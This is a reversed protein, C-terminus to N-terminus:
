CRLSSAFACSLGRFTDPEVAATGDIGAPKCSGSISLMSILSALVLRLFPGGSSHAIPPVILPTCVSPGQAPALRTVLWLIRPMTSISRSRYKCCPRCPADLSLSTDTMGCRCLMPGPTTRPAPSRTLQVSPTQAYLCEHLPCPACEARKPIRLLSDNHNQYGWYYIWKSVALLHESVHKQNCTGKRSCRVIRRHDPAHHFVSTGRGLSTRKTILGMFLM